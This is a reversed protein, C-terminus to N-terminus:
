SYHVPDATQFHKCICDSLEEGHVEKSTKMSSKRIDVLAKTTDGVKVEARSRIGHLRYVPQCVSYLWPDCPILDSHIARVAPISSLSDVLM